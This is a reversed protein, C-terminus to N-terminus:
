WILPILKKRQPFSYGFASIYWEHTRKASISLNTMVWLVVIWHKHKHMQHLIGNEDCGAYSTNIQNLTALTFYIMIEAFYHPCSVFEFWGGTPLRYSNIGYSSSTTETRRLSGLIVHHRHQQYQFYLCCMAIMASKVRNYSVQELEQQASIFVFPLCLYHLVGLLYGAIHMKSTSVSKQVWVCECCRRALHIQLLYVPTWCSHGFGMNTSARSTVITTIVGVVYFDFFRSKNVSLYNSHLLFNLTRHYISTGFSKSSSSDNWKSSRSLRTKGHSSLTNLAPSAISLVAAATLATYVPAVALEAYYM